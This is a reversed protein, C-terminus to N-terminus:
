FHVMAQKVASEVSEATQAAKARVGEPAHSMAFSLRPFSEFMSVDNFADGVTLINEPSIHLHEALIQLGRGKSIGRPMVDLCDRDSIFLDVEERFRSELRHKLPQLRKLEGFFSFKCPTVEQRLLASGLEPVLRIPAFLRSEVAAAMGIRRHTLLEHELCVLQFLEERQIEEFLAVALDPSFLHEALLEGDRTRVFAGNQSVGHAAIGISDMVQELERQMRGSALCLQSGNQVAEKLMKRDAQRVRKGEDLLTGDLDTVILEIM